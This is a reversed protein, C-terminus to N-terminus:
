RSLNVPLSFTPKPKAGGAPAAKAAKAAKNIWLVCLYFLNQFDTLVKRLGQRQQVHVVLTGCTALLFSSGWAFTLLLWDRVRLSM